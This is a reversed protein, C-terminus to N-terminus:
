LELLGEPPDIVLRRAGRDIERVVRRAFPILRPKGDGGLVELLHHPETEFVERVRGVAVGAVTVVSMGLLEHYFVEDDDEQSLEARALLLYRRALAAAADRGAVGQLRVLLGRRFRRAAEVVVVPADEALVGDENGLLLARGPVFVEDPRDTLPWVLLEGGTGHAKTVHGVVLHEPAAREGAGASV